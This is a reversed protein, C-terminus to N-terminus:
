FFTVQSSLYDGGLLLFEKEYAPLLGPLLQPFCVLKQHPVIVEVVLDGFESAREKDPTYSVLCNNRYIAEGQGLNEILQSGDLAPNFGRYLTNFGSPNGWKGLWAQAFEYVLDLQAFIAASHFRPHMKEFLYVQYDPSTYGRLPVRHFSCRLGFRSEAWGKLVAGEPRNSDFFWGRLLRAFGTKYGKHNSKLEHPEFDFMLRIHELFLPAWQDKELKELAEFFGRNMERVGNIKVPKPAQNFGACAFYASPIGTLNSYLLHAQEM